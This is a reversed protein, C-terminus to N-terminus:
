RPAVGSHAGAGIFLIAAMIAITAYIALTAMVTVIKNQARRGSGWVQGREPFMFEFWLAVAGPMRFLLWCAWGISTTPWPDDSSEYQNQYPSRRM